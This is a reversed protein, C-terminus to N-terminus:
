ERNLLSQTGTVVTNPVTLIEIVERGGNVIVFERTRTGIAAKGTCDRNVSYIGAASNTSIQGNVSTTDQSATAGSRDFTMVGVSALPGVGLLVGEVSFGYTGALTTENCANRRIKKFIGTIAIGPAALISYVEQGDDLVVVKGPRSQGGSNLILTGTCDDAISYTGQGSSRVINGNVSVTDTLTWGGEGDFTARGVSAFQGVGVLTGRQLLGYSGRLSANTCGESEVVHSQCPLAFVAAWALIRAAKSATIERM